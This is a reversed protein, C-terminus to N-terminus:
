LKKYTEYHSANYLNCVQVVMWAVATLWSWHLLVGVARCADTGLTAQTAVIFLALAVLLSLAFNLLLQSPISRSLLYATPLCYM